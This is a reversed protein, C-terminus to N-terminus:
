KRKKAPARKAAPPKADAPVKRPRGGKNRPAAAVPAAVGTTVAVTHVPAAPQAPQSPEVAPGISMQPSGDEITLCEDVIARQEDTLADYEAKVLSPKYVFLADVPVKAVRLRKLMSDLVAEDVKRNLSQVAILDWGGGLPLRNTGERPAPFYYKFLDKRLLIESEKLERLEKQKAYWANLQAFMQEPTIVPAEPILISDM